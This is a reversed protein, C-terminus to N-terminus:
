RCATHKPSLLLSFPSCPLTLSAWLFLLVILRAQHVKPLAILIKVQETNPGLHNMGLLGKRCGIFVDFRIGLSLRSIKTFTGRLCYYILCGTDELGYALSECM